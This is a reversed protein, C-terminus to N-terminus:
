FEARLEAFYPLLKPRSLTEANDGRCKDKNRAEAHQSKPRRAGFVAEKVSAKGIAFRGLHNGSQVVGLDRVLDSRAPARNEDRGVFDM